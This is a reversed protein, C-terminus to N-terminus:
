VSHEGLEGGGGELPSLCFTAGAVEAVRARWTPRAHLM